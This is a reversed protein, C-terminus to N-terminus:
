LPWIWNVRHAFALTCGPHTALEDCFNVDGDFRDGSGSGGCVSSPAVEGKLFGDSLDGSSVEEVDFVYGKEM